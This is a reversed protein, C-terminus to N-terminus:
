LESLKRDIEKAKEWDGRAVAEEYEKLLEEVRKEVKSKLEEYLEKEAKKSEETREEVEEVEKVEEETEKVEEKEKEKEKEEEEGMEEKVEFTESITPIPMGMKRLDEIVEIVPTEDVRNPVLKREPMKCAEYIVEWTKKVDEDSIINPDPSEYVRAYNSLVDKVAYSLERHIRDIDESSLEEVNLKTVFGPLIKFGAYKLYDMLYKRESMDPLELAQRLLTNVIYDYMFSCHYPSGMQCLKMFIEVARPRGVRGSISEMSIIFPAKPHTMMFREYALRFLDGYLEQLHEIESKSLATEYKFPTTLEFLFDYEPNPTIKITLTKGKLRADVSAYKGLVGKFIQELAVIREGRKEEVKKTVEKKKEITEKLKKELEELEKKKREFEEEIKKVEEPKKEAM